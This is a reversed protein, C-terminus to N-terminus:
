DRESNLANQCTACASRRAVSITVVSAKLLVCTGLGATRRRRRSTDMLLIVMRCALLESKRVKSFRCWPDIWPSAHKHQRHENKPEEPDRMHLAGEALDTVIQPQVFIGCVCSDCIGPRQNSGGGEGGGILRLPHDAMRNKCGDLLARQSL